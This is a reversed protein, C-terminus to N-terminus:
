GLPAIRAAEALAAALRPLDFPKPMLVTRAVGRLDSVQDQDSESTTLVSRFLV